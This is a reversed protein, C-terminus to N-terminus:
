WFKQFLHIRYTLSWILYKPTTFSEKSCERAVQIFQKKFRLAYKM